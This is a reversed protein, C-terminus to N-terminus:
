SVHHDWVKLQQGIGKEKATLYVEHGWAVDEIPMGEIAVFIVEDDSTRAPKKGRIIEGLSDISDRTILKDEVMYYFEEGMCGTANRFGNEDYGEQDEIGYEEYMKWNDVVKRIGILERKDMDFFSTAILTAGPKFWEKKYTPYQGPKVSVSESIIDYGRVAEELTECIIVKKINKYYKEIYEKLQAATKSKLSGAKIKVTDINTMNTMIARFCAKAIPGAGLMTLVKSDKKALLKAALGPMAGTRASSLLNAAMFALPAGTEVDNLIFMLNSRPIGMRRNNGNSGYWKCGAVHFKGGLYAPMAIFRRDAGDNIPFGEINSKKPFELMIGHSNHEPGGMIFDGDELLGITEEMIDVCKAADLVGAEIMDEEDLYLLRLKKSQVLKMKEELIAADIEEM